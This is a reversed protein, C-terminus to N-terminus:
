NRPDADSLLAYDNIDIDDQSPFPAEEIAVARLYSFPGSKSGTREIDGSDVLKQIDSRLTRESVDPFQVLLDRMRCGDPLQRIFENLAERREHPYTSSPKIPDSEPKHQKPKEINEHKNFIDGFDIGNIEDPLGAIDSSITNSLILSERILVEGNIDSIENVSVALKILRSLSDINSVSPEKVIAIASSEIEKRLERHRILTSVRFVAFGIDHIKENLIHKKVMDRLIGIPICV